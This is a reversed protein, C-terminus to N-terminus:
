EVYQSRRAAAIAKEPPSDNFMFANSAPAAPPIAGNMIVRPLVNVV